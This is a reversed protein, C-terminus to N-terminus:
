GSRSTPEHAEFPLECRGFHITLIALEPDTCTQVSRAKALRVPSGFPSLSSLYEM